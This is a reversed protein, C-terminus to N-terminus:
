SMSYVIITCLLSCYVSDFIYLYISTIHLCILCDGNILRLANCFFCIVSPYFSAEILSMDGLWYYSLLFSLLGVVPSQLSIIM